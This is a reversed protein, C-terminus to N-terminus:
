FTDNQPDYIQKIWNFVPNDNTSIDYLVLNIPKWDPKGPFYITENLGEASMEKFSVSPRASKQPPLSNVGSASIGDIKFLWRFSRKICLDDRELGFQLGMTQQSM